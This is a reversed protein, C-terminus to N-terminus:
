EMEETITLTFGGYYGNHENHNVLTIFSKDTAIEVFVQEHDGLDPGEKAEIKVLRYDILDKPDDDTTIYRSECCSQGNDWIAITKGSDFEIYFRNIDNDLWANKIILGYYEEPNHDSGESLYHFM